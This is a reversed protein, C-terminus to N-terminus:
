PLSGPAGTANIWSLATELKLTIGALAGDADEGLSRYEAVCSGFLARAQIARDRQQAFLAPCSAADPTGAARAAADLAALQGSLGGAASASRRAAVALQAAKAEARDRADKEGQAAKAAAEQEEKRAQAVAALTAGARKVQDANWLAQVRAAGARDGEAVKGDRWHEYGAVIGYIVIAGLALVLLAIVIRRTV